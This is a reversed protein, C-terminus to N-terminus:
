DGPRSRCLVRTSQRSLDEDSGGRRSDTCPWARAHVDESIVAAWRVDSCRAGDVCNARLVPSPWPPRAARTWRLDEPVSCQRRMLRSMAGAWGDGTKVGHGSGRLSVGGDMDLGPFLFIRMTSSSCSM